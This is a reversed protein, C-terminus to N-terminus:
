QEKEASADYFRDQWLITGDDTASIFKVKVTEGIESVEVKRKLKELDSYKICMFTRAVPIEYTEQFLTINVSGVYTINFKGDEEALIKEKFEDTVEMTFQMNECSGNWEEGYILTTSYNITEMDKEYIDRPVKIERDLYNEIDVIREWFAVEEDITEFDCHYDIKGFKGYALNENLSLVKITIDNGCFAKRFFRAYLLREKNNPNQIRINYTTEKTQLNLRITIRFATNEQESNSIICIGDELIEQTRLLVYDFFVEGDVSISCPMALPFPRPPVIISEGILSTAEYQVPDIVDGLFKQASEINLTIPFQHRYAYGFIDEKHPNVEKGNIQMTGSCIIKPTYKLLAEHSLPKSIFHPKGDINIMEYRYNPYLDHSTGIANFYTEIGIEVQEM